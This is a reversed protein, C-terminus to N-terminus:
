EAVEAVRRHDACDGCWIWDSVKAVADRVWGHCDLRVRRLPNARQQKALVRRAEALQEATLQPIRNNNRAM